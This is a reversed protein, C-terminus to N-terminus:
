KKKPAPKVVPTDDANGWESWSQYYNRVDTAGMLELGYAMVSARGGSQCHTATPRSLKIGAADFLTKLEDAPKFRHSDADILDSWELQKAGPVAGARKNKLADLGCFEGESRADVIQLTGGPLSKLLEDKTAMREPAAVAKFASPKVVPEAKETPHKGKEWGLWGGNLLRVDKVGWYRLVWWVRAADKARSDDYVVVRSDATLGLGAVRKSWGAADRGDGFGKAWEAHDVWRAGPVHGADYKARPRADLVVLGKPAGPGALAAPEVLLDPRPYDGARGMGAAALAAVAALTVFRTM